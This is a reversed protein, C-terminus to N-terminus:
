QVSEIHVNEPPNRAESSGRNRVEGVFIGMRHGVHQGHRPNFAALILPDRRYTDCLLDPDRLSNTKFITIHYISHNLLTLGKEQTWLRLKDRLAALQGSQDEVEVFVAGNDFRSVNTLIIADIGGMDHLSRELVEKMERLDVEQNNHDEIVGITVHLTSNRSRNGVRDGHSVLIKNVIHASLDEVQDETLDLAAFYKRITM